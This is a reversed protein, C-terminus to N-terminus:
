KNDLDINKKRLLLFIPVQYKINDIEIIKYKESEDDNDLIFQELFPDFGLEKLLTLEWSIYLPIWNEKDLDTLLNNLSVFLRKYPQSEPLSLNM